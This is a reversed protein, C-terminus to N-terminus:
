RKIVREVGSIFEAIAKEEAPRIHVKAAVRGGNVKAHGNELLHTLQYNTKNHIVQKTGIQSVRWGKAYDGTEKPSTARLNQVVSKATEKKAVELGETIEDSYAALAAAIQTSLDKVNSM